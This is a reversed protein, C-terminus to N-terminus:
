PPMRDLGPPGWPTHKEVYEELLRAETELFPHIRIKWVDTTELSDFVAPTIDLSSSGLDIQVVEHAQYLYVWVNGRDSKPIKKADLFIAHPMRALGEPIPESYCTGGSSSNIWPGEKRIKIILYVLKPSRRLSDWSGEIRYGDCFHTRMDYRKLMIQHHLNGGGWVCLVTLLIFWTRLRFRIVKLLSLLRGRRLDLGVRRFVNIAM